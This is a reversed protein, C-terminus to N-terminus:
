KEEQMEYFLMNDLNCYCKINPEIGGRNKAVNLRIKGKSTEYKELWESYNPSAKDEPEERALYYEPRYLIIVADADQEIDGSDKLDSLAPIKLNRSEVSRNIQALEVIPINFDKSLSKLTRTIEGMQLHRAQNYNEPKILGIHDIFIIDPPYKMSRLRIKSIIDTLTLAPKDSIYINEKKFLKKCEIIKEFQEETLYGSQMSEFSVGAKNSIIRNMVEGVTMELSFVMISKTEIISSIVSTMFASKGMGSRGAVVYTKGAQFGNLTRDLKGIGSRVGIIKGKNKYRYELDGLNKSYSKEIDAESETKENTKLLELFAKKYKEEVAENSDKLYVVLDQLKREQYKKIIFSSYDKIHLSSSNSTVIKGIIEKDEPHKEYFYMPTINKGELILEMCESYYDALMENEFHFPKLFDIVKYISKSNNFISSIVYIEAEIM